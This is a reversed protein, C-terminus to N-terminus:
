VNSSRGTKSGRSLVDARTDTSTGPQTGPSLGHDITRIAFEREVEAVRMAHEWEAIAHLECAWEPFHYITMPANLLKYPHSNRDRHSLLEGNYQPRSTALAVPLHPQPPAWPVAAYPQAGGFHVHPSPKPPAPPIPIHSTYQPRPDKPWAEFHPHPMPRPTPNPPPNPLPFRALEQRPLHPTPVLNPYGGRPLAPPPYPEVPVLPPPESPYGGPGPGPYSPVVPLPGSGYGLPQPTPLTIYQPNYASTAIMGTPTPGPGAGARLPPIVGYRLAPPLPPEPKPIHREEYARVAKASGALMDLKRDYKARLAAEAQLMEEVRHAILVHSIDFSLPRVKLRCLRLRAWSQRISTSSSQSSRSSKM